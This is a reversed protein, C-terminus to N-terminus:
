DFTAPTERIKELGRLAAGLVNIAVLAQPYINLLERSAQEAEAMQGSHYLNVLAAIEDQPPSSM